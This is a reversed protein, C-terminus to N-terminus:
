GRPMKGALALMSVTTNVRVRHKGSGKRDDTSTKLLTHVQRLRKVPIQNDVQVYIRLQDNRLGLDQVLDLLEEPFPCRDLPFGNPMALLASDHYDHQIVLTRLHELPQYTPLAYFPNYVPPLPAIVHRVLPRAEPINRCLREVDKPRLLFIKEAFFALKGWARFRSCTSNILLWDRFHEIQGPNLRDLFFKESCASASAESCETDNGHRVTELLRGLRWFHGLHVLKDSKMAHVLIMSLLIMSLLENPLASMGSYPTNPTQQM